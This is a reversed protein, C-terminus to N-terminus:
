LLKFKSIINHNGLMGEQGNLLLISLNGPRKYRFHSLKITSKHVINYHQKGKKVNKVKTHGYAKM